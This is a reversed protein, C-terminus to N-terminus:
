FFFEQSALKDGMREFGSYVQEFGVSGGVRQLEDGRQDYVYGRVM